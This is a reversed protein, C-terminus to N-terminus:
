YAQQVKEVARCTMPTSEHSISVPPPELQKLKDLLVAPKCPFIGTTAFASTINKKTFSVLWSAKFM